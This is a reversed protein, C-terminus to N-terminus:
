CVIKCEDEDEKEEEDEDMNFSLMAKTGKKHKTKRGERESCFIIVGATITDSGCDGFDRTVVLLGDLLHQIYMHLNVPVAGAILM